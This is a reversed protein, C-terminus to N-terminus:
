NPEKDWEGDHCDEIYQGGSVDLTTVLWLASFVAAEDISVYNDEQDTPQWEM